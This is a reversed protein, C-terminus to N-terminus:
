PANQNKSIIIIVKVVVIIIYEVTIFRVEVIRLIARTTTGDKLIVARAVRNADLLQARIFLEKDM